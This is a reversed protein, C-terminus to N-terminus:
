TQTTHTYTHEGSPRMMLYTSVYPVKYTYYKSYADWGMRTFFVAM